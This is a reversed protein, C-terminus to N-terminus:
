KPSDLYSGCLQVYWFFCTPSIGEEEDRLQPTRSHGERADQGVWIQVGGRTDEPSREGAARQCTVDGQDNDCLVALRLRAGRASM